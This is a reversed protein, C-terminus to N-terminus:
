GSPARVHGSQDPQPKEPTRHDAVPQIAEGHAHVIALLVVRWVTRRHV